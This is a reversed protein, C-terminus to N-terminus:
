VPAVVAAEERGAEDTLPGRMAFVVKKGDASTDVDKVDCLAGATLRATINARWRARRLRERAHVPGREAGRRAHHAPRGAHARRRRGAAGASSTSSRSTSPRRIASRAAQRPRHQWRQQLRRPHHGCPQWCRAVPRAAVRPTSQMLNQRGPHAHMQTETVGRLNRRPRIYRLEPGIRRSRALDGLGDRRRRVGTADSVGSLAPWISRSPLREVLDVGHGPECNAACQAACSLLGDFQRDSAVDSAQSM